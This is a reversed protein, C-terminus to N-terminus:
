KLLKLLSQSQSIQDGLIKEVLAIIEFVAPHVVYYFVKTGEKRSNILGQKRLIGLHQSLNSQEIDLVPILECVCREGQVLMKLIQIRAPHALSKLFDATLKIVIDDM